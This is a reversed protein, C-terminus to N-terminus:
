RSADNILPLFAICFWHPPTVRSQCVGVGGGSSFKADGRFAGIKRFVKLFVDQTVDGAEESDRLIRWCFDYIRNFYRDYLQGFSDLDGGMARGVLLADDM